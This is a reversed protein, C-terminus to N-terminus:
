KSALIPTSVASFSASTSTHFVPNSTNKYQAWPVEPGFLQRYAAPDRPYGQAGPPLTPLERTGPQLADRRARHPGEGGRVHGDRDVSAHEAHPLQDRHRLLHEMDHGALTRGGARGALRLRGPHGQLLRIFSNIPGGGLKSFSKRPQM